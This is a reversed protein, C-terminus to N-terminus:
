FRDIFKILSPLRNFRTKVYFNNSTLHFQRPTFSLLSQNHCYGLRYILRYKQGLTLINKHILMVYNIYLCYLLHIMCNLTRYLLNPFFFSWYFSSSKTLTEFQECFSKFYTLDDETEAFKEIFAGKM